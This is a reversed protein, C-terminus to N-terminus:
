RAVAASQAAQWVARMAARREGAAVTDVSQEALNERGVDRRRHVIAYAFIAFLIEGAGNAVTDSLIAAM